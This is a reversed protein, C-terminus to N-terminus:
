YITIVRILVFFNKHDHYKKAFPSLPQHLEFTSGHSLKNFPELVNLNVIFENRKQFERTGFTGFIYVIYIYLIYIRMYFVFFHINDWIIDPIINFVQIESYTM